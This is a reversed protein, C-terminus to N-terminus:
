SAVEAAARLAAVVWLPATSTTLDSVLLSIAEGVRLGLLLVAWFARRMFPIRGDSILLSAEAASLRRAARWRHDSEELDGRGVRCPNAALIEDDVLRAFVSRVEGVINKITKAKLHPCRARLRVIARRFAGRTMRRVPMDRLEHDGEPGLVHVMLRSRASLYSGRDAIAELYHLSAGGVTLDPDHISAAVKARSPSLVDAWPGPPDSTDTRVLMDRPTKAILRKM